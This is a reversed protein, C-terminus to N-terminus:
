AMMMPSIMRDRPSAVATPITPGGLFIGQQGTLIGITIGGAVTSTFFGQRYLALSRIAYLLNRETQTLNEMIFRRGGNALLPQVLSYSLTSATSTTQDGKAFLWLTNNADEAFNM